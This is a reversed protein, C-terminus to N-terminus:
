RKLLGSQTKLASDKRDGHATFGATHIRRQYSAACMPAELVSHPASLFPIPPRTAGLLPFAAGPLLLSTWCFREPVKCQM